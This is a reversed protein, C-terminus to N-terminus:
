AKFRAEGIENGHKSAFRWIVGALVLTAVVIILPLLYGSDLNASTGIFIAATLGTLLVVSAGSWRPSPEKAASGARDEQPRLFSGSIVVIWFTASISQEVADLSHRFLPDAFQLYQVLLWAGAAMLAAADVTKSIGARLKHWRVM